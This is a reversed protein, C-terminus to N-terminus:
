PLTNEYIKGDKMIVVFNTEPDSVLTIDELPNGDVVLVDALADPGARRGPVRSRGARLISISGSRTPLRASSGESTPEKAFSSAAAAEAKALPGAGTGRPTARDCRVRLRRQREDATRPFRRQITVEGLAKLDTMALNNVSVHQGPPQLEGGGLVRVSTTM